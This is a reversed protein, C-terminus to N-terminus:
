RQRWIVLGSIMIIVGNLLWGSVAPQLIGSDGLMRLWLMLVYYVFVVLLTVLVGALQQGGTFHPSIATLVM